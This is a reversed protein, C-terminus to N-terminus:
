LNQHFSEQETNLKNSAGRIEKWLSIFEEESALGVGLKCAEILRSDARLDIIITDGYVMSRMIDM